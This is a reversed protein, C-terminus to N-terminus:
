VNGYKGVRITFYESKEITYKLISVVIFDGDERVSVHNDAGDRLQGFFIKNESPTSVINYVWYSHSESSEHDGSVLICSDFSDNCMMYVSRNGKFIRRFLDFSSNALIVCISRCLPRSEHLDDFKAGLHANNPIRLILDLKREISHLLLKSQIWM